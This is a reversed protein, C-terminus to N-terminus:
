PGPCRPLASAAASTPAKNFVNSVSWVAENLAVDAFATPSAARFDFMSVSSKPKVKPRQEEVPQRAQAHQRGVRQATWFSPTFRAGRSFSSFAACHAPANQPTRPTSLEAGSRSVSNLAARAGDSAKAAANQARRCRM